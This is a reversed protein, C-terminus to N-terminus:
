PKTKPEAAAVPTVDPLNLEPLDDRVELVRLKAPGDGSAEYGIVAPLGGLHSCPTYHDEGVWLTDSFGSEFPGSTALKLIPANPTNAQFSLSIGSKDCSSSLITGRAVTL